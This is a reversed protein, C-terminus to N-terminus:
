DAASSSADSDKKHIVVDRYAQWQRFSEEAADHQFFDGTQCDLGRLRLHQLLRAVVTTAIDGGGRVHLMFGDCIEKSGMNFEISFGKGDLIGWSPDKFDTEPLLEQIRTIL